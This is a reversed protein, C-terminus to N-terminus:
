RITPKKECELASARHLCGVPCGAALLHPAITNIKAHRAATTVRIGAHRVRREPRLIVEIIRRHKGHAAADSLLIGPTRGVRSRVDLKLGGEFHLLHRDAQAHYRRSRRVRYIGTDVSSVIASSISEADASM